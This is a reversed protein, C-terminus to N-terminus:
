PEDRRAFYRIILLAGVYLPLGIYGTYELPTM